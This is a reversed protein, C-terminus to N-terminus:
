EFDTFLCSHARCARESALQTRWALGGFRLWATDFGHGFALHALPLCHALTKNEHYFAAAFKALFHTFSAIQKLDLLLVMNSAKDDLNQVDPYTSINSSFFSIVLIEEKRRSVM